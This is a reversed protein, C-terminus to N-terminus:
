APNSVRKGGFTSPASLLFCMEFGSTAQLGNQNIIQSHRAQPGHTSDADGLDITVALGAMPTDAVSDAQAQRLWPFGLPQDGHFDSCLPGAGCPALQTIIFPIPKDDALASRWSRMLANQCAHYYM